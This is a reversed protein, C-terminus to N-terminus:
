PKAPTVNKLAKEFCNCFLPDAKLRNQFFIRGGGGGRARPHTTPPPLPYKKLITIKILVLKFVGPALKEFIYIMLRNLCVHNGLLRLDRSLL